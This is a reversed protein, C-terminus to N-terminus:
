LPCGCGAGCAGSMAAERCADSEGCAIPGNSSVTAFASFKKSVQEGECTPCSVRDGAAAPKVLVEFDDKCDTCHYEYIPM